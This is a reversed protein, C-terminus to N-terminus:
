SNQLFLRPRLPWAARPHPRNLRAYLASAVVAIGKPKLDCALSKTVMNVAAKSTRYAYLGGSTNDSISGMMTSVVAIKGTSAVQPLLAQTVRLPGLTNLEFGHRMADMTVAELKQDNSSAAFAGANHVICDLTVGTLASKLIEGCADSAVDVGQIVVVRGPVESLADKGTLSAKRTRCTAYVTDGRAALQRVMELGIGSSCGTVLYTKPKAPESWANVSVSAFAAVSAGCLARRVSLM